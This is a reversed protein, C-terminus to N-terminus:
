SVVGCVSEPMLHVFDHVTQNSGRTANINNLITM